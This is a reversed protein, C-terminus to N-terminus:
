RKVGPTRMLLLRLEDLKELLNPALPMDLLDDEGFWGKKGFREEQIQPEGEVIDSAFGLFRYEKGDHEFELDLRGLPSRADVEVGIEERAEREAAEKPLEGDEVKGGPLEWYGKDSRYLLLLKGGDIIVNGALTVAEM